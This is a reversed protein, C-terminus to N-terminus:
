SSVGATWRDWRRKKGFHRPLGLTEFSKEYESLEQKSSIAGEALVFGDDVLAQEVDHELEAEHKYLLVVQQLWCTREPGLSTLWDILTSNSWDKHWFLPRWCEFINQEYYLHLTEARLQHSVRTLSPPGGHNFRDMRIPRRDLLRAGSPDAEADTSADEVPAWETVAHLWILERLEAPLELLPCRGTTPVALSHPLAAPHHQVVDRTAPLADEQTHSHANELPAFSWTALGTEASQLGHRAADHHPRPLGCIGNLSSIFDSPSESM